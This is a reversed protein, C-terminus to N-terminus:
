TVAPHTGRHPTPPILKRPAHTHTHSRESTVRRTKSSTYKELAIQTHTQVHTQTHLSVSFLPKSFSGPGPSTALDALTPGAGQPAEANPNLDGGKPSALVIPHRRGERVKHVWRVFGRRTRRPPPGAKRPRPPPLLWRGAAGPKKRRDRGPRGRRRPRRRTPGTARARGSVGCGGRGASGGRSRRRLTSPAATDEARGAPTGERAM